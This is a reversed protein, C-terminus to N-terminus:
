ASMWETSLGSCASVSASVAQRQGTGRQAGKASTDRYLTVTRESLGDVGHTLRDELADGV